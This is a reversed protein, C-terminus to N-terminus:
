TGTPSVPPHVYWPRWNDPLPAKLGERAIWMLDKHEDPDMGLWQAYELIEPSRRPALASLATANHIRPSPRQPGPLHLPPTAPLGPTRTRPNAPPYQLALVCAVLWKPLVPCCTEDMSCKDAGCQGSM